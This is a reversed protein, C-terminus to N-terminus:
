IHYFPFSILTHVAVATAAAASAELYAPRPRCDPNAVVVALQRCFKRSPTSALTPFKRDDQTELSLGLLQDASTFRRPLWQQVYLLVM